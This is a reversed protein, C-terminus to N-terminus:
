NSVGEPKDNCVHIEIFHDNAGSWLIILMPPLGM